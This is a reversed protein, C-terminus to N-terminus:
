RQTAGIGMNNTIRVNESAFWRNHTGADGHAIHRYDLFEALRIWMEGSFLNLFGKGERVIMAGLNVAIDRFVFRCQDRIIPLTM